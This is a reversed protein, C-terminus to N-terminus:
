KSWVCNDFEEFKLLHLVGEAAIEDDCGEVSSADAFAFVELTHRGREPKGCASSGGEVWQRFILGKEAEGKIRVTFFLRADTANEVCFAQAPTSDAFLLFAGIALTVPLCLRKIGQNTHAVTM